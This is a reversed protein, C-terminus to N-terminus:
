RDTDIAATIIEEGELAHDDFQEALQADAVQGKHRLGCVANVMRASACSDDCSMHRLQLVTRLLFFHFQADHALYVRINGFFVADAYASIRRFQEKGSHGFKGICGLSIM